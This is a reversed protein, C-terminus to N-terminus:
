KRIELNLFISVFTCAANGCKDNCNSFDAAVQQTSSSSSSSSSDLGCNYLVIRFRQEGLEAPGGFLVIIELL